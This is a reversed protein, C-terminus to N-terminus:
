GPHPRHARWQEGTLEVKIRSGEREKIVGGLGKLMAEIDAFVISAMTPLAFIAALTKKQKSNVSLISDSSSLQQLCAAAPTEPAQRIVNIRRAASRWSALCSTMATSRRQQVSGCTQRRSKSITLMPALAHGTDPKDAGDFWAM